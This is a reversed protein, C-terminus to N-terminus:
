GSARWPHDNLYVHNLRSVPFSGSHSVGADPVARGVLVEGTGGLAELFSAM